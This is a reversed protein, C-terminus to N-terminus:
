GRPFILEARFRTDTKQIDLRADDGYRSALRNRINTLGLGTKRPAPSDPDYDNEVTVRLLAGDV